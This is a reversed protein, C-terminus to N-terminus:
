FYDIYAVYFRILICIKNNTVQVCNIPINFSKLCSFWMVEYTSLLIWVLKCPSIHNQPILPLNFALFYLLFINCGDLFLSYLPPTLYFYFFFPSVNLNLVEMYASPNCLDSTTLLPSTNLATFSEKDEIGRNVAVERPGKPRRGWYTSKM